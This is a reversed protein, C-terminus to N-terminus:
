LNNFFDLFCLSNLAECMECSSNDNYHVQLHEGVHIIRTTTREDKVIECKEGM